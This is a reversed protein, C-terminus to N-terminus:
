IRLYEQLDLSDVSFIIAICLFIYSALAKKLMTFIHGISINQSVRHHLGCFLERKCCVQDVDQLPVGYRSRTTANIFSFFHDRRIYLM